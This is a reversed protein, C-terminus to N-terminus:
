FKWRMKVWLDDGLEWWKDIVSRAVSNSYDTIYEKGLQTKNGEKLNKADQKLLELARNEYFDIEYCYDCGLKPFWIQIYDNLRFLCFIEISIYVLYQYLVSLHFVSSCM